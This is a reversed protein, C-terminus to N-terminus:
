ITANYPCGVRKARLRSRGGFSCTVHMRKELWSASEGLEGGRGWGKTPGPIVEEVM